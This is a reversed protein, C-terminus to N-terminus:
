HELHFVYETLHQLQGVKTKQEESVQEMHVSLMDSAEDYIWGKGTVLAVAEEKSLGLFVATDAAAISSYSRCLLSLVRSSFDEKLARVLPTTTLTWTYANIAAYTAAQDHRWMAQGVRWAATAEPLKDKMAAPIRKWAFRASNLDNNYLHGLIQLAFPFTLTLEEGNMAIELELRDCLAAVKSFQLKSLAKNLKDAAPFDMAM